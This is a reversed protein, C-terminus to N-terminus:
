KKVEKACLYKNYWKIVYDPYDQNILTVKDAKYKAAGANYAATALEIDWKYRRLQRTLYKLGTKMNYDVDLLKNFLDKNSTLWENNLWRATDVRVQMFGVSFDNVNTEPTVNKPDFDSERKILAKVLCFFDVNNAAYETAYDTSYKVLIENVDKESM